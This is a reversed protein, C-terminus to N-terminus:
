VKRGDSIFTLEFALPETQWKKSSRVSLGGSTESTENMPIDILDVGFWSYCTRHLQIILKLYLPM